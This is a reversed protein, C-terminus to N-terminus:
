ESLAEQLYFPLPDSEKVAERSLDWNSQVSM